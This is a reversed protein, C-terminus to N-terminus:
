YVAQKDIMNIFDDLFNRIDKLYRKFISHEELNPMYAKILTQKDDNSIEFIPHRSITPTTDLKDNGWKNNGWDIDNIIDYIDLKQTIYDLDIDIIDNDSLLELINEIEDDNRIFKYDKGLLKFLSKIIKLKYDGPKEERDVFLSQSNLIDQFQKLFKNLDEIDTIIESTKNKDNGKIENEYHNNIDVIFNTYDLIETLYDNFDNNESDNTIGIIKILCNKDDDELNTIGNYTKIKRFLRIIDEYKYDDNDDDDDEFWLNITELIKNDNIVITEDKSWLDLINNLYDALEKIDNNEEDDFDGDQELGNSLLEKLNIYADLLNNIFDTGDKLQDKWLFSKVNNLSCFIRLAIKSYKTYITLDNCLQRNEIKEESNVLIKIFHDKEDESLLSYNGTKKIKRLIGPLDKYKYNNNIWIDVIELIRNDDIINNVDIIDLASKIYDIDKNDRKNNMIEIKVKNLKQEVLIEIFSELFAIYEEIEKKTKNSNSENENNENNENNKNNEYIDIIRNISKLYDIIYELDSKLRYGQSESKIYFNVLTKKESDTLDKLYGKKNIKDSIKLITDYQINDSYFEENKDFIDILLDRLECKNNDDTTIQDTYTLLANKLEPIYNFMFEDHSVKEDKNSKNFVNKFINELSENSKTKDKNRLIILLDKIQSFSLESEGDNGWHQFIQQTIIETYEEEITPIEVEYDYIKPTLLINQEPSFTPSATPSQTPSATPSATQLGTPSATQLRTPSATPSQTPSATPSATPSITPFNTGGNYIPNGIKVWYGKSKELKSSNDILKYKINGSDEILEYFPSVINLEIKIKEADSYSDDPPSIINWGSYLNKFLAM